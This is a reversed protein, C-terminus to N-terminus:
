ATVLHTVDAFAASCPPGDCHLYRAIGGARLAVISASRTGYVPTHVCLAELHRATAADLPADEPRATVLDAPPLWHDALARALDDLSADPRILARARHVKALSPADLRDNPLIHVGRPVAQVAVRDAGPRGYAVRLGTADGFLLNFPNYDGPRITALLAEIADVSGARAADVVLTGRSRAAPRPPVGTRQNTVAVITGSETVALWTGGASEDRGGVVRPATSLVQPGTAPRAYAEDRNAAVVVPFEPHTGHLIAILCM